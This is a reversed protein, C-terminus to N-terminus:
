NWDDGLRSKQLFPLLKHETATGIIHKWEKNSKFRFIPWHVIFSQM